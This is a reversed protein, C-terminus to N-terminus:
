NTRADDPVHKVGISRYFSRGFERMALQWQEEPSAFILEDTARLLLWDGHAIERELQGAKWGATGVFLRQTRDDQHVLSELHEKEVSLFVEPVVPIDAENEDQHLV